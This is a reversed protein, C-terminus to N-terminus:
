AAERAAAIRQARQKAKAKSHEARRLDDAAFMEATVAGETLAVIAPRYLAKPLAGGELWGANAWEHVATATVGLRVAVSAATIAPDSKKSEALWGRLAAAVIGHEPTTM